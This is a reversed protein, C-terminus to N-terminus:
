FPADPIARRAQGNNGSGRAKLSSVFIVAVSWVV